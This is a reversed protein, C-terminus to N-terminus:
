GIRQKRRVGEVKEVPETEKIDRLQVEWVKLRYSGRNSIGSFVDFSWGHKPCTLRADGALANDGIPVEESKSSNEKSVHFAKCGPISKTNCQQFKSLNGANNAGIDQRFFPRFANM